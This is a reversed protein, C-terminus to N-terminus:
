DCILKDSESVFTATKQKLSDSDKGCLLFYFKIKPETGSPRAIVIDGDELVYYLVDSKPLLIKEEHGTTLDRTVSTAYDSVSVVRQGAYSAPTNKRLNSMIRRIHDPGDLGELYIDRVAEGYYGYERFINDLADCLTMKRAKYYAAMEAIMMTASVADKDRAYTGVLYGYSEEFGLLYTGVGTTEANKIVEGIFKFGTLVNYLKVGHSRCIAAALETSVISKVAYADTPLNGTEERIRIIYDLLLAGMQNGNILRFSGDACRSMAGVRDADPDTAIILDSKVEEAIRIGLDFVSPIEPNPKAVTPFDGDAKMQEDVTYLGKVGCAKLVRPVLTAGTGHLPTYVIRLDDAVRAVADPCLRCAMVAKCYADDMDAGIIVIRGSKVSEDYSGRKVDRFIDLAASSASVRAAHEPPLQAGDEWYAKYGNYQKPNHSATINIGAICGLERIAFSLEPTPRLADFLYVKIDNAALVAAATRAFEESHHRSDYAIVVGRANAKEECILNSLGQTAHAVTYINMANIGAKMVGRLGATGFELPHLFRIKIEDDDNEIAKLEAKTDADVEDANLWRRYEDLYNKESM